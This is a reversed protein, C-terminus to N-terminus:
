LLGPLVAKRGAPYDPFTRLYWRHHALARPVLNAATWLAFALGPLSWSAIAWGVWELLEGLYNPCSVFRYAWGTPVRYGPRGDMRLRRLVSDSQLNLAFGGLFIIAGLVVRIDVISEIASPGGLGTLGLGLFVGNIGNFAISSLRIVLPMPSGSKVRWPYVLVRNGYHLLWLALLMLLSPSASATGMAIVLTPFILLAPLEMLFWGIGAPVTPGASKANHRGYPAAIRLLVLAIAPALGIWALLMLRFGEDISM